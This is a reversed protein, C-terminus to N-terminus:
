WERANQKHASFGVRIGANNDTTCPHLLLRIRSSDGRICKIEAIYRYSHIHKKELMVYARRLLIM